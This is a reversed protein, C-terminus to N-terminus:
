KGFCSFNCTTIYRKEWPLIEERHHLHDELTGNPVLEYVLFLNVKQKRCWCMFDFLDWINRSCCWGKLEVLNMHRTESIIRLEALFDEIEVTTKKKKKVAVDQTNGNDDTYRGKYVTGFAGEGLVSEKSFRSTADCL